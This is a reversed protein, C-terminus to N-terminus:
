CYVVKLSLCYVSRIEGIVKRTKVALVDQSLQCVVSLMAILQGILDIFSLKIDDVSTCLEHVKVRFIVVACTTSVVTGTLLLGIFPTKSIYRCSVNLSRFVGVFFQSFSPPFLPFRPLFRTLGFVSTLSVRLFPLTVVPFSKCVLFGRNM